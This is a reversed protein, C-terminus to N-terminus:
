LTKLWLINVSDGDFKLILKMPM